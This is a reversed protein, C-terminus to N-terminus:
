KESERIKAIAQKMKKVQESSALITAREVPINNGSRFYGDMAELAEMALEKCAREYLRNAGTFAAIQAYGSSYNEEPFDEPKPKKLETM